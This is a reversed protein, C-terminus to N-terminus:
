ACVARAADDNGGVQRARQLTCIGDVQSSFARQRHQAKGALEFQCTSTRALAAVRHFDVVVAGVAEAGDASGLHQAPRFGLRGDYELRRAEHRWRVADGEAADNRLERQFGAVATADRSRNLVDELHRVVRRERRDRGSEELIFCEGVRCDRRVVREQIGPGVVPTGPGHMVSPRIEAVPGRRAGELRWHRCLGATATAAAAARRLCCSRRLPVFGADQLLLLPESIALHM